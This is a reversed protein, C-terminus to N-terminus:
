VKIIMNTIGFPQMNNHAQDNGHDTLSMGTTKTTTTSSRFSAGSGTPQLDNNSGNFTGAYNTTLAHFHGPDNLALLGSAIEGRSLQHEEEGGTTNLATGDNNSLLGKDTGNMDGRGVLVSDRRDPVNFTTSGDGQGYPIIRLTVGSNTGSVTASVHVSSASPVSTIFTGLPIGTGEINAGTLGIATMSAAIGDITTSGHTNGTTTLTLAAYLTKYTDVSGGNAVPRSYATGDEWLWGAPLVIGAFPMEAGSPLVTVGAIEFTNPSLVNIISPSGAGPGTVQLVDNGAISLRWDQTGNRYWGSTPENIDSYAPAAASGDPMQIQKSNFPSVTITNAGDCQVLQWGSNQPIATSASGSPTKITLTHAGSTQNNVWWFKTLNPVQIIQNSGLAGTFVLAGYRVQSAAAPPPSASFDLTGGSVSSTLVNAIADEFIQFVNANAINGWTNNDNGTGMVSYGLTNSFTDATM